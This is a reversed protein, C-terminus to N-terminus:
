LEVGERHKKELSREIKYFRGDSGDLHYTINNTNVIYPDKYVVGNVMDHNFIEGYWKVEGRNVSGYKTFQIYLDGAKFM